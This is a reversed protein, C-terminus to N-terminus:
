TALATQPTTFHPSLSWQRQPPSTEHNPGLPRSAGSIRYQTISAESERGLRTCRYLHRSLGGDKDVRVRILGCKQIHAITSGFPSLTRCQGWHSQKKEERGSSSTLKADGRGTTCYPNQKICGRLLWCCGGSVDLSELYTEARSRVLDGSRCGLSSKLGQAPSPCPGHSVPVAM